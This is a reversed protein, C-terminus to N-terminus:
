ENVALPNLKVEFTGSARTSMAAEKRTPSPTQSQASASSGSALAVLLGALAIAAIPHRNEM